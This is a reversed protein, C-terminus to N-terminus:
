GEDEQPEETVTGDIPAVYRNALAFENVNLTIVGEYFSEATIFDWSADNVFNLAEVRNAFQSILGLDGTRITISITGVLPTRLPGTTPMLPQWALPVKANFASVSAGEPILPTVEQLVDPWNIETATGATQAQEILAISDTVDRIEVYEQQQAITAQGQTQATLLMAQASTTRIAALAVGAAVLGLVVVLALVAWSLSSRDRARQAVEPPLFDVRPSGGVTATRRRGTM